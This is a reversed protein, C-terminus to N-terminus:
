KSDRVKAVTARIKLEGTWLRGQPKSAKSNEMVEVLLEGCSKAMEYADFLVTTLPPLTATAQTELINVGIISLDEPIRLGSEHAKELFGITAADLFSIIATVKPYKDRIISSLNAGGEPTNPVDILHLKTKFKSAVEKLHSTLGFNSVLVGIHEHGFDVLHSIAAIEVERFDRDVYNYAFDVQTRGLVVFPINERNFLQVRQDNEKVNMLIVGGSFNSKLLSDVDTDDNDSVPWIVGHYGHASVGDVIGEVLAGNIRSSPTTFLNSIMMTVVKSNGGALAAAAYNSKYGSTKIAELVRKKTKESISRKGSLVYSVTSESVGALKAVDARTTLIFEM